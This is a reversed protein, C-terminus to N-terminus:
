SPPIIKVAAGNPKNPLPTHLWGWKEEYKQLQVEQKSLGVTPEPTNPTTSVLDRKQERSGRMAISSTVAITSGCLLLVGVLELSSLLQHLMYGSMVFSAGSIWM